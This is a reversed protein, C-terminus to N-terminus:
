SLSILNTNQAFHKQIIDADTTTIITQFDKLYNTLAKRRSGDLESFVDDLLILPKQDREKKVREIEILKLGLVLTRTEGRSAITDALRNNISIEFDDRHPGYSTYGKIIDLELGKQLKDLLSTEYNSPNISTKYKININTKALAIESYINSIQKNIEDILNIRFNVIKGAIESLRIDWVFIQKKVFNIDNKLLRNRQMLTRKYNQKLLTFEPKTESLIADFFDRRLDPPGTLLRLNDPEFIVVPLIDSFNLRKKSKENIEYVKEVLEGKKSIKVVRKKNTMIGEIRTWDSNKNIVDFYSARFSSNGSLIILSELLNTKGSANPGVVINVTPSLEVAYDNYSRFNQLRLSTIPSANM